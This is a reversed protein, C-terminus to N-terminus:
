AKEKKKKEEQFILKLADSMDEVLEEFDNSQITTVMETLYQTHHVWIQEEKLDIM